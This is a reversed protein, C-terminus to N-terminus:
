GRVTRNRGQSKAEYLAVDAAAIVEDLDATEASYISIGYSVTPMRLLEPIHQGALRRSIEGV